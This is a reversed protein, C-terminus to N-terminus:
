CHTCSWIWPPLNSISKKRGQEEFELESLFKLKKGITSSFFLTMRQMQFSLGDSIGDTSAYQSNAELYGGIAIPLKGASLFPRNYVADMDIKQWLDAVARRLFSSDSQAHSLLHACVFLGIALWLRSSSTSTKMMQRPKLIKYIKNQQHTKYRARTPSNAATVLAFWTIVRPQLECGKHTCQLLLASYRESGLRYLM